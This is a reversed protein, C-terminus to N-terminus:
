KLQKLENFEATTILLQKTFSSATTILQKTPTQSFQGAAEAPGGQERRYAHPVRGQGEGAVGVCLM